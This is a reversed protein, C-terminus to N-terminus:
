VREVGARGAEVVFAGRLVAAGGPKSVDPVTVYESRWEKANLTCRVYGREVNFFKVGSNEAMLQKEFKEGREGNGGSSISTGVFEAAVVPSEPKLDDIRLDNVWNSHIDGTLVVPNAIRRDHMFEMLKNREHIYGSWTDVAFRREVGAKRDAVGMMVQNALVNWTADSRVLSEEVWALQRKGLMTQKPSLMEENVDGSKDDNPQPSRYQRGDLVLFNALRGFAAQRYLQMKPGRPLSTHRLPMMEYYAQYAHARRILFKAPDPEGDARDNAYDNAVEHDDWTVFWPCRTHMGQLLPDTKYQAHRTRYNDLSVCKPTAHKRVQDDRPAGEYIYDGLHFVLDLEDKAMHEYATYLGSEYHQCSAFAFRMQEPSADLTPLTRTRAIRTEADGCRFRYWYWRNPELNDVEVHVSHALQPTATATGRRLIKKMSEDEALEWAVEVNHPEMGGDGELPRPALRTWLVVGGATPDGSAVGVTFPDREFKPKVSKARAVRGLLPIASIGAAYELFVRRSLGGERRVMDSLRDWNM